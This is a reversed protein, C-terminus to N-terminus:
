VMARPQSRSRAVRPQTKCRGAALRPVLAFLGALSGLLFSSPEPIVNVSQITVLNSPDTGVFSADFVPLDTFPGGANVTDLAAIQDVINMGPSLVEGFVIFGGSQTDLFPNDVLNIFWQNTASDTDFTRAMSITGRLNSSSTELSIPPDSPVASMDSYYGGGQIVFGPISRHVISNVYDGDNVYNLFNAVTNPVVEDYLKVDFDGVSTTFRVIPSANTASVISLSLLSSMLLHQLRDAFM